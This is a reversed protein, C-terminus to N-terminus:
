SDKKSKPRKRKVLPKNMRKNERYLIVIFGLIGVVFLSAFIVELGECIVDPECPLYIEIDM